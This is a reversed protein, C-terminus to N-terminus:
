SNLADSWAEQREASVLTIERHDDYTSIADRLAMCVRELKKERERIIKEAIAYEDERVKSLHELRKTLKHNDANLTRLREAAEAIAANAIGDGSQIDRALMDMVDSLLLTETKKM